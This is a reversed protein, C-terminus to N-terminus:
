YDTIIANSRMQELWGEALLGIKRNLLQSRVADRSAPVTTQPVRACLMVLEAAGSAATRVLSEGPDMAALTGALDAPLAAEALSQRQLAEDPLGRAVPYLDDCRTARGAVAQLSPEQGPALAIRAYEVNFVPTAEGPGESEDRLYYIAIGGPVPLAQSVEGPAMAEIVPAVGPPLASLPQWDMMGGSAANEAKSYKQAFIQFGSMSHTGDIIRQALVAPDGQDAADTLYIVSVAVLLEGGAAVGAGIARDIETESVTVSGAFRGRVAARWEMGARVFDRLAAGDVGKQDLLQLLQELSLQGRAAFETMGVGVDADGVAIGAAKAAAHRLRDDILSQRALAPVDGPQNLAEMLRIRQELEYSTVVEENVKIVPGIANGPAVAASLALALALALGGAMSRHRGIRRAREATM